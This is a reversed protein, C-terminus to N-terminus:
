LHGVREDNATTFVTGQNDLPGDFDRIVQAILEGNWRSFFGDGQAPAAIGVVFRKAIAGV